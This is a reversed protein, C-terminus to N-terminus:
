QGEFIDKYMSYMGLASLPMLLLWGLGLPISAVVAAVIWILGYVLFAGINELSASWSAKIADIPAVGGLVVLAPAFWMAMAFVFGLVLGVLFALLGVAAGALLGSASQAAGSAAMGLVAGGGLAAMVLVIVISAGVAVAGLVLLPNLKDKFGAFLDSVELTGGSELKRASLMWGGILVQTLVAAVLGGLVPIFHLVVMVVLFIVTFILWMAPNKMFLAWSESWWATGRGADVRRRKVGAEVMADEMM